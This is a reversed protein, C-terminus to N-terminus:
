EPTADGNGSVQATAPKNVKIPEFIEKSAPRARDQAWRRLSTIKEQYMKALPVTENLAAWMDAGTLERGASFALHLAGVILQELEAGSMKDSRKAIAPVPMAAPDRGRRRLHINLIEARAREDPLDVFFTEDFRGKRLLEPPLMTVDNATAVVFVASTREGLWTIFWGFLRSLGANQGSEVGALGKELEDIWLVVPAMSEVAVIVQRLSASGSSGSFIGALDLRCLPMNWEAAIAKASLSKGCGQVGLLLLGKPPPLGFARAEVSLSSRRDALWQKLANVGGVLSLGKQEEPSLEICELAANRRLLRRKEALITPTPDGKSALAMRFVRRAEELGLGRAGAVASAATEGLERNAAQAMEDLLARLESQDPPSLTLVTAERHLEDPLEGFPSIALLQHGVAPGEVAVDCLMRREIATLESLQLGLLALLAPRESTRLAKLAEALSPGSTPPNMGRSISWTALPMGLQDAVTQALRLGRSEEFSDVVTFGYGATLLRTLEATAEAFTM